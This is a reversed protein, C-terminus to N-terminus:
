GCTAKSGSERPAFSPEGARARHAPARDCPRPPSALRRHVRAVHGRLRGHEPRDGLDGEARAPHLRRPERATAGAAVVAIWPSSALGDDARGHRRRRRTPRRPLLARRLRPARRRLRHRPGRGLDEAGVSRLPRPPTASSSRRRSASLITAPVRRTPVLLRHPLAAERSVLALVSFTLTTPSLMAALSVLVLESDVWGMAHAADESRRASWMTGIPRRTFAEVSAIIPEDCPEDDGDLAGAPCVM